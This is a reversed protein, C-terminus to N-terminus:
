SDDPVILAAAQRLPPVTQHLLSTPPPAHWGTGALAAAPAGAHRCASPPADPPQAQAAAQAPHRVPRSPKHQQKRLGCLAMVVVAMPRPAPWSRRQNKATSIAPAALAAVATALTTTDAPDAAAVPEEAPATLAPRFPQPLLRCCHSFRAPLATRM